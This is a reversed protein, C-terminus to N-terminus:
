RAGTKHGIHWARHAECFYSVLRGGGDAHRRQMNRTSAVAAAATPYCVKGCPQPEYKGLGLLGTLLDRAEALLTYVSPDLVPREPTWGDINAICRLARDRRSM